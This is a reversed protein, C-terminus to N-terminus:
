GNEKIECKRQPKDYKFDTMQTYTIHIIAVCVCYSCKNFYLQHVKGLCIKM